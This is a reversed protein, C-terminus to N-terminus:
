ILRKEALFDVIAQAANGDDSIKQVETSLHSEAVWATGFGLRDALEVQEFFNEFMVRESPMYGHVETQCISFFIDFEVPSLMLVTRRRPIASSRRRTAQAVAGAIGRM